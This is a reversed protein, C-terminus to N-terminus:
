IGSELFRGVELLMIRFSTDSPFVTFEARIKGREAAGREKALMPKWAPGTFGVPTEVCAGGNAFSVVLSM